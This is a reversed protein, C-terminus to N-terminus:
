QKSYSKSTALCTIKKSHLIQQWSTMSRSQHTTSNSLFSLTWSKNWKLFFLFGWFTRPIRRPRWWRLWIKMRTRSFKCCRICISKKIQSLNQFRPKLNTNMCSLSISLSISKSLPWAIRPSLSIKSNSISRLSMTSRKTWSILTLQFPVIWNLRIKWLHSMPSNGSFKRLHRTLEHRYSRWFIQGQRLSPWNQSSISSLSSHMTRIISRSVSPVLFVRKRANIQIYM